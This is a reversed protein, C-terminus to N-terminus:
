LQLFTTKCYNQSDNKFSQNKKMKIKIPGCYSRFREDQKFQGFHSPPWINATSEDHIKLQKCFFGFGIFSLKHVETAANACDSDKNRKLLGFVAPPDFQAAQNMMSCPFNSFLRPSNVQWLAFPPNKPLEKKKEERKQNMHARLYRDLGHPMELLSFIALPDFKLQLNM